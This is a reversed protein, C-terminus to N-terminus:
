TIELFEPWYQKATDNIELWSQMDNISFRADPKLIVFAVAKEGMREDSKAVIAVDDVSAHAYIINEIEAVPINEGGRIIIDKLRGEISIYGENDIAALDGTPFWGNEDFGNLSEKGLYGEMRGKGRFKLNM